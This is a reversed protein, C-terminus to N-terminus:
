TIGLVEIGVNLFFKVLFTSSESQLVSFSLCFVCGGRVVVCM